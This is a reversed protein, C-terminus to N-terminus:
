ETCDAFYYEKTKHELTYIVCRHDVESAKEQTIDIYEVGNEDHCIAYHKPQAPAPRTCIDCGNDFPDQSCSIPTTPSPITPTKPVEPAEPPKSCSVISLLVFLTKLKM